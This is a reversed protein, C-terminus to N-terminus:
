RLKPPQDPDMGPPAREESVAAPQPLDFRLAVRALQGAVADSARIFMVDLQGADLGSFTLAENAAKSLADEAGPAAGVFALVHGRSGDDYSAQALFATEAAAGMLALKADLSTLLMEPLAGPTTVEKITMEADEPAHDLVGSFWRLAENPLLYASPAVELNLGLGLGQEALLQVLARGSLAVYPAAGETFETLREARDFALVFTGEELEFVQPRVDDDTPEEEVMLFLEADAVREYYRLRDADSGTAEMQAFAHDIPTPATM